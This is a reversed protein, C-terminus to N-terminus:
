PPGHDGVTAVALWAGILIQVAGTHSVSEDGGRLALAFRALGTLVIFVMRTETAGHPTSHTVRKNHVPARM